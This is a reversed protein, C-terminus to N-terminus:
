QLLIISDELADGWTLHDDQKAQITTLFRIYKQKKLNLSVSTSPYTRVYPRLLGDLLSNIDGEGAADDSTEVMKDIRKTDFGLKKLAQGILCGHTGNSCKGSSYECTFQNPYINNPYKKALKIVEKVLDYLTIKPGLPKENKSKM